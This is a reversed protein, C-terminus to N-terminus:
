IYLTGTASAMIYIWFNYEMIAPFLSERSRSHCFLIKIRQGDDLVRVIRNWM